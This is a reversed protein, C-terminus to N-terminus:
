GSRTLTQPPKSFNTLPKINTHVTLFLFRRQNDLISKAAYTWTAGKGRERRWARLSM